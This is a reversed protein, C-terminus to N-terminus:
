KSFNGSAKEKGFSRKGIGGRIKFFQRNERAKFNQKNQKKIGEKGQYSDELCAGACSPVEMRSEIKSIVYAWKIREANQFITLM